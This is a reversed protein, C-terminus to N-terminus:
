WQPVDAFNRLYSHKVDISLIIREQEGEHKVSHLQPPGDRFALLKGEEWTRTEKNGSLESVTIKCKPDCVLGLHIRMYDQTWGCHPRIISGPLLRSIFCNALDESNELTSIVRDVTPCRQKANKIVLDIYAKQQESAYMSIFEGNFVSLPVAKWYNEYLPTGAINYKPYDFLAGPNSVFSLVEDKIAVYNQVLDKCIPVDKIVEDWFFLM